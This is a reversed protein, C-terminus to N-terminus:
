VRKQEYHRRALSARIEEAGTLAEGKGEGRKQVIIASPVVRGHGVTLMQSPAPPEDIATPSVRRILLWYAPDEEQERGKCERHGLPM